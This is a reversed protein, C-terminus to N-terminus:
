ILFTFLKLLIPTVYADILSIIIIFILSIIFVLFYKGIFTKFDLSKKTLLSKLFRISVYVSYFSLFLYIIICVVHCPFIYLLSGLIGKLSYKYIITGITLGTTFGKFFLIFIVAFIGIMSIGLIFIIIIQVVNNILISEFAGLGFISKDLNKVCTFFEGVEDVLIKKDSNGVFNIFLSGFVLGVLFIIINFIIIKKEKKLPENLYNIIKKM